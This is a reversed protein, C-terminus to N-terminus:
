SGALAGLLKVVPTEYRQVNASASSSTDNCTGQLIFVPNAYKPIKQRAIMVGDKEELVFEVKLEKEFEKLLAQWVKSYSTNFLDLVAKRFDPVGRLRARNAYFYDDRATITVPNGIKEYFNGRLGREESGISLCLGGCNRFIFGMDEFDQSEGKGSPAYGTLAFAYQMIRDWDTEPKVKRLHGIVKRAEEQPMRGQLYKTDVVATELNRRYFVLPFFSKETEAALVPREDM